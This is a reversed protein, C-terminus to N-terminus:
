GLATVRMVADVWHHLIAAHSTEAYSYSDAPVYINLDGLSRLANDPGMASLTVVAGGLERARLAAKVVNPSNGSSSVLVALDGPRMHWSLPEAFIDDFCFDNGVCTILAPDTFVMTRVGANKALDTSFHSAMSASAGNGAFFACGRNQALELTREVWASLGAHGLENGSRDRVSLARMVAMLEVVSQEWELTQM